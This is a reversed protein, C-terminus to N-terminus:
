TAESSQADSNVEQSTQEIRAKSAQKSRISVRYHQWLSRMKLFISILTGNIVRQIFSEERCLFVLHRQVRLNKM